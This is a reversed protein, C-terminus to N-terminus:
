SGVVTSRRHIFRDQSFRKELKQLDSKLSALRKDLGSKFQAKKDSLRYKSDKLITVPSSKLTKEGVILRTKENNIRQGVRSSLMNGINKLNMRTLELLKRTGQRLGVNADTMYQKESDFRYTWTSRFRSEAEDLHREMEIFRAVIEEAVATPTKFHKNAVHDLVSIDIEHGIGTWVPFKYDAIKRAIIENDLSFLDTKSGGGRIIIVLEVELKELACMAKLVTNETKQGQMVADATFIKYGFPSAKLTKIFDNYAASNTSTILGLRQPLLPVPITKNPEFLGAKKLRELIERKKLELDGLAFCPDADRVTLSLGYQPSYQLACQFGVATGNELKLELGNEIFRNRIGALDRNWITCKMKAIIKGCDDTEVLDCYFSGGRERGSSIEATVWFSKGIAPQLYHQVRKTITSLPFFCRQNM